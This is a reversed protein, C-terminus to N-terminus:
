LPIGKTVVHNGGLLGGGRAVREQVEANWLTKSMQSLKGAVPSSIDKTTKSSAQPYSVEKLFPTSTSSLDALRVQDPTVSKPPLSAGQISGENGISSIGM